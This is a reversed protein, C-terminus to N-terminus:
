DIASADLDAELIDDDAFETTDLIRADASLSINLALRAICVACSLAETACTHTDVGALFKIDKM